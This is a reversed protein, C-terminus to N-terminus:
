RYKSKAKNFFSPPPYFGSGSVPSAGSAWAWRVFYNCLHTFLPLGWLEQLGRYPSLSQLGRTTRGTGLGPVFHCAPSGSDLFPGLDASYIKTCRHSLFKEKSILSRQRLM